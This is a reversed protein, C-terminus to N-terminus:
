SKRRRRRRGRGGRSRRGGDKQAGGQRSGDKQAGGQRSGRQRGGEDDSEGDDGSRYGGVNVLVRLSRGGATQRQAMRTMVHEFARLTEGGRGILLGNDEGTDITVSVTSSGNERASVKAEPLGMLRLVEGAMARVQAPLAGAKPHLVVRAPRGGFLGLFGRAGKDLVEVETDARGWGLAKLGRNVAANVDRGKFEHQNTQNM